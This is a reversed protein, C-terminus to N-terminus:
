DWDDDDDDSDSDEKKIHTYVSDKIDCAAKEVSDMIKNVGISETEVGKFRYSCDFFLAILMAPLLVSFGFIMLIVFITVPMSIWEKGECYVVFLNRNGKQILDGLWLLFRQILKSFSEGQAEKDKKPAPPKTRKPQKETTYVGDNKPPQVKGQRELYIIADLLDGGCADLAERAEDYSVNTHARLREVSELTAM